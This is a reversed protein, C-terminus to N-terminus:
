STICAPRPSASSWPWRHGAAHGPLVRDARPRSRPDGAPVVADREYVNVFTQHVPDYPFLRAAVTVSPAPAGPTTACACSSRRGIRCRSEAASWDGDCARAASGSRCGIGLLATLAASHRPSGPRISCDRERGAHRSRARRRVRARHRDRRHGRRRSPRRRLQVPGPARARRARGARRFLWAPTCCALDTRM